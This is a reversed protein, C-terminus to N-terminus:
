AGFPDLPDLNRIELQLKTATTALSPRSGEPVCYSGACGRADFNNVDGLDKWDYLNVAFICMWPGSDLQVWVCEYTLKGNNCQIRDLRDAARNEKLVRVFLEHQPLVPQPALGAATWKVAPFPTRLTYATREALYTGYLAAHFGRIWLWVTGAIPLNAVAVGFQKFSGLGIAQFRLRQNQPSVVRHQKLGILQGIKEDIPGHDANCDRHTRLILPFNRDERDFCTEAPVHDDNVIDADLFHAGCLYCFPLAKAERFHKQTELKPM